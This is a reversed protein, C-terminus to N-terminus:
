VLMWEVAALINPPDQMWGCDPPNCIFYAVCKEVSMPPEAFVAPRKRNTTKTIRYAYGHALVFAYLDALCKVDNLCYSLVGDRTEQTATEGMWAEIADAGDGSKQTLESGKCFSSMSAYYGHRCAFEFMLDTHSKALMKVKAFVDPLERVHAAVVKFDFGAGNFTVVKAGRGELECLYEVVAAIDDATMAPAYNSHFVKCVVDEAQVFHTACCTINPPTDGEFLGDTEIDFAVFSAEM